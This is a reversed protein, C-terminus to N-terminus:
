GAAPESRSVDGRANRLLRRRNGALVTADDRRWLNGMPQQSQGRVDGRRLLRSRCANLMAAAEFNSTQLSAHTVWPHSYDYQVHSYHVSRLHGVPDHQEVIHFFRDFDQTSKTKMLDFENALSWWINRYASMRALVYRLYRDDSEASM